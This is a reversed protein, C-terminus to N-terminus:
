ISDRLAVTRRRQSVSIAIRIGVIPQGRIVANEKFGQVRLTEGARMRAALDASLDRSIHGVRCAQPGDGTERTVWLGIANADYPNDPELKPQLVFPEDPLTGIFAQRDQGSEEDAFTVGKVISTITRM